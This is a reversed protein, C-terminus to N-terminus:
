RSRPICHSKPILTLPLASPSSESSSPNQPSSSSSPVYIMTSVANGEHTEPHTDDSQSSSSNQPIVAFIAFSINMIRPNGANDTAQVEYSHTGQSLTSTTTDDPIAAGDLTASSTALGSNEDAAAYSFTIPTDAPVTSSIPATTITPPETDASEEASLIATPEIMSINGSGDNLSLAPAQTKESASGAPALSAEISSSVSPMPIDIYTVAGLLHAAEDYTRIKLNIKQDSTNTSTETMYPVAAFHYTDSAPLMLASFDRFTEYGSGPIESKAVDTTLGEANEAMLSVPGEAAVEITTERHTTPARGELCDQTSTSMGLPALPLSSVANELIAKILAIPEDYRILGLHDAGNESYLSFYVHSDHALNMASVVPVTGDGTGRVLGMGGGDQLVFQSVTSPNGCGVIEFTDAPLSATDEAAHFANANQILQASEAASETSDANAMSATIVDGTENSDLISHNGSRNDIVYGGAASVYRASPLLEYAGPMTDAISKIESPNLLSVPGIRFGLDDGYSIAKFMQPAGLQPPAVLILKDIFSTDTANTLYKKALLAGMSHAIVDIKGNPSAARASDFISGLSAASSAIDLRWDYPAVFLDAGERYGSSTLADILPAYFDQSAFPISTTATRMIDSAYLKKEPSENGHSGLALDDLYSDSPSTIMTNANPWVETNDSTRDLRSGLVGPIIVVPERVTSTPNITTSADSIGSATNFTGYFTVNKVQVDSGGQLVDDFAGLTFLFNAPMVTSTEFHLEATGRTGRGCGLYVSDTSTALAVDPTEPAAIVAGYNGYGDCNNDGDNQWDFTVKSLAFSSPVAYPTSSPILACSFPTGDGFCPDPQTNKAYATANDQLVIGRSPDEIFFGSSSSSVWDSTNGAGDMARAQWHYGGNPISSESVQAVSSTNVIMPSGALNAAGMFPIFSPELEVQLSLSDPSPSSLAAAFTVTSDAITGPNILQLSSPPEVEAYVVFMADALPSISFSGGITDTATGRFTIGSFNQEGFVFNWQYREGANLHPKSEKFTFMHPNGCNYGNFSNDSTGLPIGNGDSVTLYCSNTEPYRSMSTFGATLIRIAGVTGSASATFTQTAAIVDHCGNDCTTQISGTASADTQEALIGVASVRHAPVSLFASMAALIILLYSKKNM